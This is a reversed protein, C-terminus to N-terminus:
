AVVEVPKGTGQLEGSYTAESDYPAELDRSIVLTEGEELIGNPEQMRVKIKKKERMATKLLNFGTENPIFVGDFSISWGGLGYDYEYFGNSDKSTEDLTEATESFSANRQGGVATYIADETETAPTEEVLLLIDVGRM